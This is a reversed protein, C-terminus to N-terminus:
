QMEVCGEVDATLDNKELEEPEIKQIENALFSHSKRQIGEKKKLRDLFWFSIIFSKKFYSFVNFRVDIQEKQNIM